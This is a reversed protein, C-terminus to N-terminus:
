GKPYKKLYAPVLLNYFCNELMVAKGYIHSMELSHKQNGQKTFHDHMIEVEEDILQHNDTIEQARKTSLFYRM